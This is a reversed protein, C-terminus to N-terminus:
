RQAVRKRVWAMYAKPNESPDPEINEDIENGPAIPSIPSPARSVPKPPPPATIKAELRALEIAQKAPPLGIIRVAEGPDKGLAYFVDAGHDLSTVAELFPKPAGGILSFGKVADDFDQFKAKGASYTNNCAEDFQRRAVEQQVMAEMDNQPAAAPAQAGQPAAGTTQPQAARTLAELREELARAREVEAAHKATLARIRQERWDEKHPAEPAAPATEQQEPAAPTETAQAGEAPAPNPTETPETAPAETTESM